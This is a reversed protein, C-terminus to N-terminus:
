LRGRDEVVAGPKKLGESSRQTFADGAPVKKLADELLTKTEADYPNQLFSRTLFNRAQPNEGREFALMGLGKLSEPTEPSDPRLELVREWAREAGEAKGQAKLSWGRGNLASFNSPWTQLVRDFDAQAEQHAGLKLRCWGRGLRASGDHPQRALVRGFVASAEEYHQAFYLRWGRATEPSRSGLFGPALLLRMEPTLHGARVAEAMLRVYWQDPIRQSLEQVLPAAEAFRGELLRLRAVGRFAEGKLFYEEAKRYDGTYFYVDGVGHYGRLFGPDIETCHRFSREAEDMQGGYFQSFGLAYWADVFNPSLETALRLYAWSKQIEKAKALALGHTTLTRALEESSPGGLKNRAREADRSGAYRGLLWWVGGGGALLGLVLAAAIWLWLRRSSEEQRLSRILGPDALDTLLKDLKETETERRGGSFIGPQRFTAM